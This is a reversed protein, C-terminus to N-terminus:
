VIYLWSLVLADFINGLKIYKKEGIGKIFICDLGVESLFALLLVMVDTDTSYVHVPLSLSEHIEKSYLVNKTDEEEQMSPSLFSLVDTNSHIESRCSVTIHEINAILKETLYATLHDKTVINSLFSHFDKIPTNDNVIYHGRLM